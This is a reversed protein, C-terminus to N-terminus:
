ENEIYRWAFDWGVPKLAYGTATKGTYNKVTEGTTQDPCLNYQRQSVKYKEYSPRYIIQKTKGDEGSITYSIEKSYNHGIEYDLGQTFPGNYVNKTGSFTGTINKSTGLTDEATLTGTGTISPGEEFDGYYLGIDTKEGYTEWKYDCGDAPNFGREIAVTQASVTAVGTIMLVFVCMSTFLKKM